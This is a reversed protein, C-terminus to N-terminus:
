SAASGLPRAEELFRNLAQLTAKVTAHDTTAARGLGMRDGGPGALTVVVAGDIGLGLRVASRVTFPVPLGLDQLAELTALATSVSKGARARGVTRRAEHSLHVEVERGGDVLHVGLLAVRPRPRSVGPSPQVMDTARRGTQRRSSPRDTGFTAGEVAADAENGPPEDEPEPILGVARNSLPAPEVREEEISRPAEERGSAKTGHALEEHEAREARREVLEVRQTDPPGAKEVDALVAAAASSAWDNAASRLVRAEGVPDDEDESGLPAGDALGGLVGVAVSVPHDFHARALEQAEARVSANDLGAPVALHVTLHGDQGSFGVSAVGPLKRLELELSDFAAVEEFGEVPPRV